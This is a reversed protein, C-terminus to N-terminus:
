ANALEQYLLKALIWTGRIESDTMKGRLVDEYGYRMGYAFGTCFSDENAEQLKDIKEQMAIIVEANKQDTTM